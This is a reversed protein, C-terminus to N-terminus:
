INKINFNKELAFIIMKRVIYAETRESEDVMDSIIRQIDDSVVTQLQNKLPATKKNRIKKAMM